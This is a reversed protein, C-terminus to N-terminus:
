VTRVGPLGSLLRKIEAQKRGPRRKMQGIAQSVRTFHGMVLHESVWRRPVTTRQRLWWALVAKEPASKPMRELESESLELVRLAQQLGQKASAEDHATKAQGSHSKRFPTLWLQTRKTEVPDAL